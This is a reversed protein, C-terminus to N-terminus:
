LSTLHTRMDLPKRPKPADVLEDPVGGVYIWGMLDEDATLQHLRRLPEARTFNGTRWITGWGAEHLLLSLLHAAGSAVAEQEWAPVKEHDRPCSVVALLLPARRAKGILKTPDADGAAEALARGLRDRADGRLEIVRWPRLEAHDPLTVLAEVLQALQEHSPADDTLKSYSRRGRVGDLM